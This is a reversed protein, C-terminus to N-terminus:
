FCIYNYITANLLNPVTANTIIKYKMIYFHFFALPFAKLNKRYASLDEGHKKIAWTNHM